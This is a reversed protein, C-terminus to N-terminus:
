VRQTARQSGSSFPRLLLPKQIGLARALRWENSATCYLKVVDSTASHRWSSMYYNGISKIQLLRKAEDLATCWRSIVFQSQTSIEIETQMNYARRKHQPFERSLASPRGCTIDAIPVSMNKHPWKVFYPGVRWTLEDLARWTLKMRYVAHLRHTFKWSLFDPNTNPNHLHSASPRM